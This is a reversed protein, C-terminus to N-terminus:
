PQAAFVRVSDLTGPHDAEGEQDLLLFRKLRAPLPLAQVKTDLPWPQLRRRVSVRCLHKLPAPSHQLPRLRGVLAQLGEGRFRGGSLDAELSEPLWVVPASALMLELAAQAKRLHDDSHSGDQDLQQLLVGFGSWCSPGHLSCHPAAGSEMLLRLLRFHQRFGKLCLLTLCAEPPCASPDAGHCTLLQAARFCFGQTAEAEQPSSGASEGLLLVLPSFASDGERTRAGPDAGGELLLRINETNHIQVGDSSALAHLLATKGHKDAANVTAGLELLRQLCPLREAEESALDLPSSEHIRDRRNLDAGHRVLLTVMDPQNRLVAVHLATYYTVPDEFAVDAGNNLLTEAARLLGREAVKLLAFSVGDLFYSLRSKRRLLDGLRRLRLDDEAQFGPNPRKPGEQPETGVLGLALLIEDVLPQYEFVIRRFGHLFPMRGGDTRGKRREQLFAEKEAERTQLLFRFPPPHTEQTSKPVLGFIGNTEQAEKPERWRWRGAPPPGAARRGFGQLAALPWRLATNGLLLPTRIGDFAPLLLFGRSDRGSFAISPCGQAVCMKRRRGEKRQGPMLKGM